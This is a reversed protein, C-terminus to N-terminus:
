LTQKILHWIKKEEKYLDRRHIKTLESRKVSTYGERIMFFLYSQWKNLGMKVKDLLFFDPVIDEVPIELNEGIDSHYMAERRLLRVTDRIHHYIALKLDRAVIYEMMKPSALKPTFRFKRMREIFIYQLESRIDSNVRIWELWLDVFEKSEELNPALLRLLTLYSIDNKEIDLYFLDEWRAFVPEMMSLIKSLDSQKDKICRIWEESFEEASVELALSRINTPLTKYM